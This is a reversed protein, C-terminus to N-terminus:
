LCIASSSRELTTKFREAGHFTARNPANFRAVNGTHGVEDSTRERKATRVNVRSDRMAM